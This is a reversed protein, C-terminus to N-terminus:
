FSLLESDHAAFLAPIDAGPAHIAEILQAIRPSMVLVYRAEVEGANWYTHATGRPAVVASGASAVVMEDGLRFGLEGELVYWSEDDSHHVHLPAIWHDGIEATWEVLVFDRSAVGGPRQALKEVPIVFLLIPSARWEPSRGPVTAVGGSWRRRVVKYSEPVFDSDPERWAPARLEDGPEPSPRHSRRTV